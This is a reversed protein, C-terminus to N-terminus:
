QQQAISFYDRQINVPTLLNQQINRPVITNVKQGNPSNEVIFPLIKTSVPALNSGLM